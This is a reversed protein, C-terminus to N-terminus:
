INFIRPCITLILQIVKISYKDGLREIKVLNIVHDANEIRIEAV